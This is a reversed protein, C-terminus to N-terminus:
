VGTKFKAAIALNIRESADNYSLGTKETFERVSEYEVSTRVLRGELFGLKVRIDIGDVNVIKEERGLIVRRYSTSRIGFTTSNNFIESEFLARDGPKCLVTLLQAMRNKKMVIPTIFVDLAGKKFLRDFLFGTQEPTADDINTEIKVITEVNGNNEEASGLLIRVVNPIEFDKTGAGYGTKEVTMDPMLGYEKAYYKIISAGTPTTLEGKVDTSCVPVGALIEATAPAPVPLKGHAANVFGSGLAIHSSYIKDPKIENMLICASVIDVISDVAGVEHFHIKKIDVNHVKSEARGLITFVNIADSKVKEDLSSGNIIDTIERLGRHHHEHHHGDDHSHDHHNKLIVDFKLSNIGMVSKESVKIEFEGNISLSNLKQKLSEANDTIALLGAALKDGSLGSFGDIYLIKM